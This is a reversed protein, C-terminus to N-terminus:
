GGWDNGGVVGGYGNDATPLPPAAPGFRDNLITRISDLISTASQNVQSQPPTGTVPADAFPSQYTSQGAPTPSAVSAQGTRERYAAIRAADEASGALVAELKKAEKAGKEISDNTLDSVRRSEAEAQPILGLIRNVEDRAEQIRRRDANTIDGVRGLQNRLNQEAASLEDQLSRLRANSVLARAAEDATHLVRSAADRDSHAEDRLFQSTAAARRITDDTATAAEVQRRRQEARVNDMAIQSASMQSREGIARFYSVWGELAAVHGSLVLRVFNNGMNQYVGIANITIQGFVRRFMIEVNTMARAFVDELADAAENFMGTMVAPLGLFVNKIDEMAKTFWFKLASWIYEAGAESVRKIYDWVPGWWARIQAFALFAATKMLMWAGTMDVQVLRVLGKIIPAWEDFVTLIGQMPV